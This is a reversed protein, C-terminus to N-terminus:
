KGICFSSFIEDLVNELDIKGILIDLCNAAMRINHAAIEPLDDIHFARLYKVCDALCGRQRANISMRDDTDPTILAIKEQVDMLLEAIDDRSEKCSLFKTTVNGFHETIVKTMRKIEVASNCEPILDCKNVIVICRDNESIINSMQAKIDFEASLMILRIDADRFADKARIIGEKEINSVADDRVGATDSLIVLHGGLNLRVSVIDRTTGAEDSIISVDHRSLINMLTSKGVNPAGYIAIKVGDMLHCLSDSIKIRREVAAIIDSVNQVLPTLDPIDEDPFDIYAELNAMITIISSRWQEYIKSDGSMKEAAIRRQQSTDAHIIDGIAEAQLLNVQGNMLARRTFEGPDAIRVNQLKALEDMVDRIVATGGHIHLELIDEGTYSNPSAFFLALAFDLKEKRDITMLNVPTAVRTKLLRPECMAEIVTRVEAGSLRIIAIAARGYATSLAFITDKDKM